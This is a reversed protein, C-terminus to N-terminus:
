LVFRVVFRFPIVIAFSCGFDGGFAGFAGSDGTFGGAVFAGGFGGTTFAGGLGDGFGTAFGAGFGVTSIICTSL